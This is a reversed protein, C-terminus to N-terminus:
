AVVLGQLQKLVVVLEEAGGLVPDGLTEVRHEIGAEVAQYASDAEVHPRAVGVGGLAVQGYQLFQALEDRSRDSGVSKVGVVACQSDQHALGLAEPEERSSFCCLM